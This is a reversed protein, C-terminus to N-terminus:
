LRAGLDQIYVRRDEDWSDAARDIPRQLAVVMLADAHQYKAWAIGMQPILKSEYTPTPCYHDKLAETAEKIEEALKFPFLKKASLGHDVSNWESGHHQGGEPDANPAPIAAIDLDFHEPITSM